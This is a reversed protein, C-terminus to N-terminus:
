GQKDRRLPLQLVFTTHEAHLDLILDGGHQEAFRKSISLGLGTGKGVPKTTFFPRMISQSLAASIKPGSNAVSIEAIADHHELKLQIWGDVAPQEQIADIANNMLNVIIQGIQIRNCDAQVSDNLQVDLTLGLSRMKESFFVLVEEAILALRELRFEGKSDQRTLNRMSAIIKEIREVTSVIKESRFKIQPHDVQLKLLVEANGRIIALPNNIEHAIGGAMEGLASLQSAEITKQKQLELDQQGREALKILTTNAKEYVFSLLYVVFTALSIQWFYTLEQAMDEPPISPLIKGYFIYTVGGSLGLLTLSGYIPGSAYLGAVAIVPIWFVIQNRISGSQDILYLIVVSLLLIVARAMIEHWGTYKGLFFGLILSGALILHFPEMTPSLIVIIGITLLYILGISVLGRIKIHRHVDQKAASHIFFDVIKACFALM